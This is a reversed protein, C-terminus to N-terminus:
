RGMLAIRINFGSANYISTKNNLYNILIVKTLKPIYELTSFKIRRSTSVFFGLGNVFMIDTELTVIKNLELISKPIEVYEMVVPDSSNRTTKGKLSAVNPGFCKKANNVAELTVPCNRIIVPRIMNIYDGASPNGVM